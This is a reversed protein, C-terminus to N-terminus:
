GGTTVEVWSTKVIVVCGHAPPASTSYEDRAVVGGRGDLIEAYVKVNPADHSSYVFQRETVNVGLNRLVVPIAGAGGLGGFTMQVMHVTFFNVRCRPLSGVSGDGDCDKNVSSETLNVVGNYIVRVRRVELRARAGMEFAEYVLALPEGAGVVLRGIEDELGRGEPYLLRPVTTVLAGGRVTIRSLSVSAELPEGLGLADGHADAPWVEVVLTQGLPEFDVGTSTLSFRIYRAGGTGYAVQELVTAAYTLQDKAAEYEMMQRNADILSTSFYVAVTIATLLIGTLIVTSVVQSVARRRAGRPM